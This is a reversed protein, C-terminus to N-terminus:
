PVRTGGRGKWAEEQDGEWENNQGDRRLQLRLHVGGAPLETRAVHPGLAQVVLFAGVGGPGEEAPLSQGRGKGFERVSVQM